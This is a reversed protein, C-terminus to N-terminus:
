RQLPRGKGAATPRSVGSIKWNGEEDILTVALRHRSDKTRGLTVVATAAKGDTKVDSVVINTLWDDLYDQAQTFYDEDLGQPSNLRRDIDRIVPDSIKARDDQVPNRDKAIAQLYWHYFATLTAQPTSGSNPAAVAPLEAAPAQAQAGLVWILLLWPVTFGVLLPRARLKEFLTDM